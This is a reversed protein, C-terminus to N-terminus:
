PPNIAIVLANLHVDHFKGPTSKQMQCRASDGQRGDRTDCYRL